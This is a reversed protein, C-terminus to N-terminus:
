TAMVMSNKSMCLCSFDVKYCGSEEYAIYVRGLSSDPNSIKENMFNKIEQFNKTVNVSQFPSM